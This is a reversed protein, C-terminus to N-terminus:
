YIIYDHFHNCYRSVVSYAPITNQERVELILHMEGEVVGPSTFARVRTIRNDFYPRDHANPVYEMILLTVFCLKIGILPSFYSSIESISSRYRILEQIWSFSLTLLTLGSRDFSYKTGLCVNTLKSSVISTQINWCPWKKAPSSGGSHFM